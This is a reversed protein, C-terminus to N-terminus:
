MGKRNNFKEPAKLEQRNWWLLEGRM